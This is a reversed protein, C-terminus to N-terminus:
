APVPGAGMPTKPPPATGAPAIDAPTTGIPALRNGNEDVFDVRRSGYRQVWLLGAQARQKLIRDSALVEYVTSSKATGATVVRIALKAELTRLINQVNTRDLGVAKSIVAYGMQVFRSESNRVHRGSKWLHWYLANENGSHGDEVTVARMIRGASRLARSADQMEALIEASSPM